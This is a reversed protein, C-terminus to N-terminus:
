LPIEKVPLIDDKYQIPARIARTQNKAQDDIGVESVCPPINYWVRGREAYRVVCYWQQVRACVAKRGCGYGAFMFPDKFRMAESYLPTQYNHLVLFDIILM